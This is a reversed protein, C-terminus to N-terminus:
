YEFGVGLVVHFGPEPLAAAGKSTTYRQNGINNLSLAINYKHDEGGELGLTLNLTQWGEYKSIAGAISMSGPQAMEECKVAWNSYLDTFVRQHENVEAQWKVGVRGRVRPTGTKDSKVGNYHTFMRRIWTVNTYPTLGLSEFTYGLSLETGLTEAKAANYFSAINNETYSAIYNKSDTFFVAADIDWGGSQYRAGIEYNNSTEPKLDPNPHSSVSSGGHGAQGTFLQSITPYRNGQSWQARLALDNIGTYVLGVSGVLKDHSRNKTSPIDYAPGEKDIFKSEIWTQRAGLTLKYDEAFSWEDQVFIGLTTQEVHAKSFYDALAPNIYEQNNGMHVDDFEYDLGATVYHAGISWESVGSFTYQDQDSKVTGLYPEMLALFDSAMERKSNQYAGTMTLKPLYRNLDRLELTATVAKRDNEPMRMTNASSPDVAAAETANAYFLSSEYQDARLSFSAKDWDYGLQGSYYRNKYNSRTASGTDSNTDGPVKREGVNTGSGSFRYNFGGVDGFIASQVNASGTSTDLIFNQSFAVPKGNGGKKTIINIVGGIAEPGYLVSAPGKIVEIREIQSADILVATQASRKDVTKVGNILILTRSYEEGRISIRKAGAIGADSLEVGPVTALIDTINTAPQRKIDQDTIVNVTMPLEFLDAETRSATVMITPTQAETKVSDQDRNEEDDAWLVSQSILLAPLFLGGFLCRGPNFIGM